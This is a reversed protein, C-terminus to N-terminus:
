IQLKKWEMRGRGSGFACDNKFVHFNINHLKGRSIDVNLFHICQFELEGRQSKM